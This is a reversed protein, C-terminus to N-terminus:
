GLRSIIATVRKPSSIHSTGRLEAAVDDWDGPRTQRFLRMTPYWPSSDRNLVWRWEPAFPLLTWVPRGLAGALQVLATDVSVLLDLQSLAVATDGFDKLGTGLVKVVPGLGLRGIQDVGPGAQLSYCAIGPVSLM